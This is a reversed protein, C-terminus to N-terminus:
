QRTVHVAFSGSNDSYMSPPVGDSEDAIGLYLHTATGPATFTLDAGAANSFDARGDGSNGIVTSLGNV